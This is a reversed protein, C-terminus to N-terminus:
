RWCHWRVGRDQGALHAVLHGPRGAGARCLVRRAARRRATRLIGPHRRSRGATRGVMSSTGGVVASSPTSGRRGVLRGQLRVHDSLRAARADTRGHAHRSARRGARPTPGRDRAPREVGGGRCRAHGPRVVHRDRGPGHCRRVRAGEGCRPAGAPARQDAGADLALHAPDRAALFDLDLEQADAHAAIQAAAEGPIMGLRAQAVALATIIDLWRQLRAREEFVEALEPTGWLHAYQESDSLRTGVDAGVTAVLTRLAESIQALSAGWPVVVRGDDVENDAELLCCKALIAGSGGTRKRPCIDVQPAREGYFWEHIQQSRECGILTWDRREPHEDLYDTTAGEVSVGGGRCPLLYSASTRSRALEDLEVVDPVLEIPPLHEALALM